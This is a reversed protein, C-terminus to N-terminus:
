FNLFPFFGSDFVLDIWMLLRLVFVFVVLGFIVRLPRNELTIMISECYVIRV